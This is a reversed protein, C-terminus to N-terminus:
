HALAIFIFVLSALVIMALQFQGPYPWKPPVAPLKRYNLIVLAPCYIAMAATQTAGQTTRRALGCRPVLPLAPPAPM